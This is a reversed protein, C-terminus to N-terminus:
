YTQNLNSRVFLPLWDKQSVASLLTVFHSRPSLVKRMQENGEKWESLATNPQKQHKIVRKEKQKINQSFAELTGKIHKTDTVVMALRLRLTVYLYIIYCTEFLSLM